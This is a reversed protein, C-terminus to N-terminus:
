RSVVSINKREREALATRVRRLESELADLHRAGKADFEAREIRQLHLCMEAVKTAGINAGSSRLAHTGDRFATVNADAVSQRLADLVKESDSLYENLLDIVFEAGGLEELDIMKEWSIAPTEDTAQPFLPTVVGTPDFAPVQAPAIKEVIDDILQLLPTAEVPKSICADMGADLCREMTEISADATIGVIPIRRRGLATFRYLKTAEIGNMVPMNVDMLVIDLQHDKMVDLAAEGDGALEVTHGARGLIMSFVKQNMVNDDAVLVRLPKRISPLQDSDSKSADPDIAAGLRVARRLADPPSLPSIVTVFAREIARDSLTEAPDDVLLVPKFGHALETRLQDMTDAHEDLARHDVVIAAVDESPVAAALEYVQELRDTAELTINAGALATAFAAIRQEDGSFLIFRSKREVNEAIRDEILQVKSTFWFSSGVGPTSDVGIEGGILEAVQKCIALGLGTGGFRDIITNDAQRFSEFIHSQAEPEIGIGTDTVALLLKMGGDRQQEIDASMTISGQDTFKIANGVLNVVVQRLRGPDGVLADPVDEDVDGIVEL